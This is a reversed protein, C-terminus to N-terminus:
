SWRHETFTETVHTFMRLPLYEYGLSVQMSEVLLKEQHHEQETGWLYHEYKAEQLHKLLSSFVTRRNAAAAVFKSSQIEENSGTLFSHTIRSLQTFATNAYVM